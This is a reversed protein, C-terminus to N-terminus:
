FRMGLGIGGRHRTQDQNFSGDYTATLRLTPTLSYGLGVGVAVGSDRRVAGRTIFADPSGDFRARQLPTGDGLEHEYIVRLHSDLAGTAYGLEIGGGARAGTYSARDLRLNLAGAGTEQTADLTVRTVDLTAIPSLRLSQLDIDFRMQASVGISRADRRNEVTRDIAGALLEREMDLKHWGAGVAASLQFAGSELALWGGVMTSDIDARSLRADVDADSRIYGGALGARLSGDAGLAMHLLDVGGNIGYSRTALDAANGDGSRRSDQGLVGLWLGIGGPAMAALASRRQLNRTFLDGVDALAYQMSAHAEGSALDFIQRAQPTTMFLIQNYALAADSGETQDLDDLASAASTQNATVAATPFLPTPEEPEEPEVPEEPEEPDPPVNNPTLTLVVDNGSGGAYSVTPTLFALTNTVTGFQGTIADAGDNDLITYVFPNIGGFSNGAIEQVALTAGGLAVTGNVVLRDSGGQDNVKIALTSAADLTLNGTTLTAIGAGSSSGPALTGGQMTVAGLRGSGGLTAGPRVNLALNAVNGDMVLTGAEVTGVPLPLNGPVTGTITWTGAGTKRIDEFNTARASNGVILAITGSTGAEGDLVFTDFGDGGDIVGTVDYTPLLTIREDGAGLDIAVDSTTARAVTGAITIHTNLRSVSPDVPTEPDDVTGIVAANTSSLHAGEDIRIVAEGVGPFEGSAALAIAHSNVGQAAIRAGSTLHIPASGGGAVGIFLGHAQEGSTTIAGGITVNSESDPAFSALIGSAGDGTTTITGTHITTTRTSVLGEDVADRADIGYAYLGATSISGAMTVMRQQGAEEFSSLVIGSSYNGETRISGTSTVEVEAAAEMHVGQVLDGRTIISGSISAKGEGRLNIAAYDDEDPVDDPNTITISGNRLLYVSGSGALVGFGGSEVRGAILVDADEGLSIAAESGSVLTSTLTTIHAGDGLAIGTKDGEVRAGTQVNVTVDNETGTGYGDNAGSCSVTVGNAAAPTCAFAPAPAALVAALLAAKSTGLLLLAHIPKSRTKIIM